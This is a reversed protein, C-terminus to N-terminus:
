QIFIDLDGDNDYDAFSPMSKNKGPVPDTFDQARYVFRRGEENIYPRLHSFRALQDAKKIFVDPWGDNNYDGVAQPELRLWFYVDYADKDEILEFRLPQSSVPSIFLLSIVLAIPFINDLSFRQM